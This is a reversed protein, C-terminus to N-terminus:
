LMSSDWPGAHTSNHTLPHLSTVLFPSFIYPPAFHGELSGAVQQSWYAGGNESVWWPPFVWYRQGLVSSLLVVLGWPVWPSPHASGPPCVPAPVLLRDAGLGGSVLDAPWYANFFGPLVFVHVVGFVSLCLGGASSLCDLQAVRSLVDLLLIVVCRVASRWLSVVAVM